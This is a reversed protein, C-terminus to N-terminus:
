QSLITFNEWGGRMKRGREPHGEEFKHFLRVAGSVLTKQAASPSIQYDYSAGNKV